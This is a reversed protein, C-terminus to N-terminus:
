MSEHPRLEIKGDTDFIPCEKLLEAASELNDAKIIIFGGISNEIDLEWESQKEFSGNFMIGQRALPAGGIIVESSKLTNMFTEWKKYYASQDDESMEDHKTHGGKLLVLFESM